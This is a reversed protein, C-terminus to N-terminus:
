WVVLVRCMKFAGARMSYIDLATSQSTSVSKQEELDLFWDVRDMDPKSNQERRGRCSFYCVGVLTVFVCVGVVIAITITTHGMIPGASPSLGGLHEIPTSTSTSTSTSTVTTSPLSNVSLPAAISEVGIKIHSRESRALEANMSAALQTSSLSEIANELAGAGLEASDVVLAYDIDLNYYEESTEQLRRISM